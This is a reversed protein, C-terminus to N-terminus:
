IDTPGGAVPGGPMKIWADLGITNPALPTNLLGV